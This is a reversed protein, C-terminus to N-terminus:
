RLMGMKVASMDAVECSVHKVHYYHVGCEPLHQMEKLFETEARDGAVDGSITALSAIIAEKTRANGLRHLCDPSVYHM